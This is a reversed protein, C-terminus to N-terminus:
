RGAPYSTEKWCHFRQNDTCSMAAIVAENDFRPLRQLRSLLRDEGRAGQPVVCGLESDRKVLLWWVDMGLPGSDNTEIVVEALEDWSMSDESGDPRRCTVREADITVEFLSEPMLRSENSKESGVIRRLFELM